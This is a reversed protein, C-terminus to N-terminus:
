VRNADLAMKLGLRSMCDYIKNPRTIIIVQHIFSAPFRGPPIIGLRGTLGSDFVGVVM